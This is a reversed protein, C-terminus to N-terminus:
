GQLDPPMAAARSRGLEDNAHQAAIRDRNCVEILPDGSGSGMAM